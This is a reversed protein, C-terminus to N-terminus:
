ERERDRRDKQERLAIVFPHEGIRADFVDADNTEAQAKASIPAREACQQMEDIM